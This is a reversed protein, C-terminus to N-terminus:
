GAKGLKAQSNLLCRTRTPRRACRSARSTWRRTKTLALDNSLAPCHLSAGREREIGGTDMRVASARIVTMPPDVIRDAGDDVELVFHTDYGLGGLARGIAGTGAQEISHPGGPPRWSRATRCRGIADTVTAHFM